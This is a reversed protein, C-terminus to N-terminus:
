MSCAFFLPSFNKMPVIYLSSGSAAIILIPISMVPLLRGVQHNGLPQAARIAAQYKVDEFDALSEFFEAGDVGLEAGGARVEDKRVLVRLVGPERNLNVVPDKGVPVGIEGVRGRWFDDQVEAVVCIADRGIQHAFRASSALSRAVRAAATAFYAGLAM